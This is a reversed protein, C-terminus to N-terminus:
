GCQVCLCVFMSHWSKCVPNLMATIRQLSVHITLLNILVVIYDVQVTNWIKFALEAAQSLHPVLALSTLVDQRTPPVLGIAESLASFIDEKQTRHEAVDIKTETLHFGSKPNKAKNPIHTSATTLSDSRRSFSNRSQEMLSNTANNFIQDCFKLGFLLQVTDTHVSHNSSISPTLPFPYLLPFSM